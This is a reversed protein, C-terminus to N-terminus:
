EQGKPSENANNAAPKIKELYWCRWGKAAAVVIAAGILWGLADAIAPPM